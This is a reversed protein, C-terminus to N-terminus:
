RNQLHAVVLRIQDYPVREDLALFLEKLRDTGLKAKAAEVEKYVRENVWAAISAPKEALIYDALYQTVTSAARGMQQAVEEISAGQGFMVAAAHRSATLRTGAIEPEMKKAPPGGSVDM